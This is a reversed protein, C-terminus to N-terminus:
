PDPYPHFKPCARSTEKDQEKHPPEIRMRYVTINVQLQDPSYLLNTSKGIPNMFAAAVRDAISLFTDDTCTYVNYPEMGKYCVWVVGDKDLYCETDLHDGWERKPTEVQVKILRMTEMDKYAEEFTKM